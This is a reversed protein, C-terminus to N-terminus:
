LKRIRSQHKARYKGLIFILFRGLIKRLLISFTPGSEVTASPSDYAYIELKWDDTDTILWNDDAPRVMVDDCCNHDDLTRCRLDTSRSSTVSNEKPGVVGRILLKLDANFAQRECHLPIRLANSTAHQSLYLVECSISRIIAAV